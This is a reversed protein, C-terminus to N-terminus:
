KEPSFPIAVVMPRAIAPGRLLEAVRWIEKGVQSAKWPFLTGGWDRHLRLSQSIQCKSLWVEAFGVLLSTPAM